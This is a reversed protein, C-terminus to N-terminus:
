YIGGIRDALMQFAVNKANAEEYRSLADTEDKSAQSKASLFAGYAEEYEVACLGFWFEDTILAVRSKVGTSYQGTTMDTFQIWSEEGIEGVSEILVYHVTLSSYSKEVVKVVDGPVLSAVTPFQPTQM